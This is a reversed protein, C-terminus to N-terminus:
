ATLQQNEHPLALRPPLRLLTIGTIKHVMEAIGIVM